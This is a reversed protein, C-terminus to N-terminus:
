RTHGVQHARRADYATAPCVVKLGPTHAYTEPNQSHFPWRPSRRGFAWACLCRLEGAITSGEGTPERDPFACSIFDMFQFEAVPRMRDARGSVPSLPWRPSPLIWRQPWAAILGETVKFSRWLHRHGRRHLLPRTASWEEWIGQRIAELYTVPAMLDRYSGASKVTKSSPQSPPQAEEPPPVRM